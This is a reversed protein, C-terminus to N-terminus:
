EPVRLDCKPLVHNRSRRQGYNRAESEEKCQLTEDYAADRRRADSASPRTISSLRNSRETLAPAIDTSRARAPEAGVETRDANLTSRPSKGSRLPPVRRRPLWRRKRHNPTTARITCTHEQPRAMASIFAASRATAKSLAPPTGYGTLKSAPGLGSESSGRDTVCLRSLPSTAHIYIEVRM